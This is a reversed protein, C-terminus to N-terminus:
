EYRLVSVINQKVGWLAPLFGFATTTAISMLLPTVIRDWTLHGLISSVPIQLIFPAMTTLLFIGLILGCIAGFLGLAINEIFFQLLIDGNSGGLAKKIGIEPLREKFSFILIISLSLGSTFMMVLVILNIIDVISKTENTLENHVSERSYARTVKYVHKLQLLALSVDKKNRFTIITADIDFYDVYDINTTNFDRPIYLPITPTDTFSIDSYRLNLADITRLVDPTDSLIGVIMYKDTNLPGDPRGITIHQGLPNSNGFLLKAFSSHIITVNRELVLDDNNFPRGCLLLPKEINYTSDLSPLHYNHFDLTVGIISGFVTFNIEEDAIHLEMTAYRNFYSFREGNYFNKLRIVQDPTLAENILISHSDFGEYMKKYYYILADGYVNAVLYVTIGIIIGIITLLTRVKHTKLISISNKVILGM